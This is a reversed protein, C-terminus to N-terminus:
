GKGFIPKVDDVHSKLSSPVVLTYICEVELQHSVQEMQEHVEDEEGYDECVVRYRQV